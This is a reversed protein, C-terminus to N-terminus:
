EEHAAHRTPYFEADIEDDARLRDARSGRTGLVVPGTFPVADNKPQHPPMRKSKRTRAGNGLLDDLGIGLANLLLYVGVAVLLLAGGSSLGGSIGLVIEFFVGFGAFAMLGGTIMGRGVTRLDPENAADAMMTLGFGIFSFFLTWAYAWTAWLGTLNQVFLLAGMGAVLSGPVSLMLAWVPGGKWAAGLMLLGPVLLFLPWLLGIGMYALVGLGILALAIVVQNPKDTASQQRDSM